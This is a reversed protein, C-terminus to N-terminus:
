SRSHSLRSLLYGLGVGMLFAPIPNNRVLAAIDSELGKFGSQELYEGSKSLSDAVTRSANAFPGDEPTWNQVAAGAAKLGGGVSTTAQEAQDDLYSAAASIQQSASNALNKSQDAMYGAANKAGEKVATAAQQMTEQSLPNSETM